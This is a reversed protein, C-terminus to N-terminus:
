ELFGADRLMEAHIEAINDMTEQATGEGGVVYKAMEDKAAILLENYIPINYFDKVMGM